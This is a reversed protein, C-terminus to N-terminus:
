DVKILSIYLQRFQKLLYDLNYGNPTAMCTYSYGYFIDLFLQISLEIDIEKKIEGNEIARSLISKWYGMEKKRRLLIDELIENSFTMANAAIHIFARNINAIGINAFYNQQKRKCDVFQEINEWLDKNVDPMPFTLEKNTIFNEVVSSFIQEKTKFHYLIAGRSLGTAKELDTFTIDNLSKTSFLKFGELLINQKSINNSDKHRM